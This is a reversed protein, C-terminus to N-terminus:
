KVSWRFDVIDNTCFLGLLCVIDVVGWGCGCLGSRTHTSCIWRWVIILLLMECVSLREQLWVTGVMRGQNKVANVSAKVQPCLWGVCAVEVPGM